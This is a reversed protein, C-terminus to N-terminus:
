NWRVSPTVAICWKMEISWHPFPIRVSSRIPCARAACCSATRLAPPQEWYLMPRASLSKSARKIPGRTGVPSGIQQLQGVQQVGALDGHSHPEALQGELERALCCVPVRGPEGAKVRAGEGRPAIEICSHEERVAVEVLCGRSVLLEMADGAKRAGGALLRKIPHVLERHKEELLPDVFRAVLFWLGVNKLVLQGSLLKRAPDGQGVSIRRDGVGGM